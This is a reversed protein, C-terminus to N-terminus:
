IRDIVNKHSETDEMIDVLRQAVKEPPVLMNEQKYNIFEQLRSFAEEQASRIQDQMPTDVIGPAIAYFRCNRNSKESELDGVQSVMDLAAKSSCYCNWGDVPYKAAGSSVNFVCQDGKFNKFTKLFQNILLVPATMNVHYHKIVEDPDMNGLYQVPEIVGANNVLVIGEYQDPNPLTFSFKKTQDLDSLDIANHVYNAHEITNRRSLGMVHNGRSLAEEAIAKGIGTSTGTIFYYRMTTTKFLQSLNM